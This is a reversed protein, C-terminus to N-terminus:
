VEEYKYVTEDRIQGPVIQGQMCQDHQFLKNITFNELVLQFQDLQYQLELIM